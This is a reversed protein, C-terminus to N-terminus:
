AAEPRTQDTRGQRNRATDGIFDRLAAQRAATLPNHATARRQLELRCDMAFQRDSAHRSLGCANIACRLAEVTMDRVTTGIHASM